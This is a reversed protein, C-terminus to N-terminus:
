RRTTTTRAGLPWQVLKGQNQLYAQQGAVTQLANARIFGEEVDNVRVDYLAFNLNRDILPKNSGAELIGGPSLDKPNSRTAFLTFLHAPKEGEAQALM